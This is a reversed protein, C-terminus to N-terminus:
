KDVFITPVLKLNRRFCAERIQWFNNLMNLTKRTDHAFCKKLEEMIREASINDLLDANCERNKFSCRGGLFSTLPASLSFGKTVCFRIARLMRLADERMRDDTNGVCRLIRDKLDKQGNYPDILVGDETQAMANVTFDRRALDDALTGIEVFDPRRGDIAYTGDKRALVFDAAGLGPVKGRATLFHPHSVFIEGGRNRIAQEMAEFSEAEVCFDNDKSQLGLLSDRVAGGVLYFKAEM